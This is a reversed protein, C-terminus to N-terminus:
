WRVSCDSVDVRGPGGFDCSLNVTELESYFVLNLRLVGRIRISFTYAIFSSKCCALNFSFYSHISSSLISCLLILRSLVLYSLIFYYYTLILYSLVFAVYYAVLVRPDMHTMAM